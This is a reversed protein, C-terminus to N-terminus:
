IVVYKGPFLMALPWSAAVRLLLTVDGDAFRSSHYHSTDKLIKIVAGVRYIEFESLSLNKNEKLLNLCILYSCNFCILHVIILYLVSIPLM